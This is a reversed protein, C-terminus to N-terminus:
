LYFKLSKLMFSFSESILNSSVKAAESEIVGRGYKKEDRSKGPAIKRMPFAPKGGM